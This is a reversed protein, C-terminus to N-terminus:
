ALDGMASTMVEDVDAGATGSWVVDATQTQYGSTTKTAGRRLAIAPCLANSTADVYHGLGTVVYNANSMNNSLTLSINGAEVDTQGSLNFSDLVSLSSRQDFNSWAKALGQQVSTTVAGGESTATLSAGLGGKVIQTLAM